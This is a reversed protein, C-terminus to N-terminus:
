VEYGTERKIRAKAKEWVRETMELKQEVTGPGAWIRDYAAHYYRDVLAQILHRREQPLYNAEM